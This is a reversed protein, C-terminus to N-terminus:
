TNRVKSLYTVAPRTNLEALVHYGRKSQALKAARSEPDNLNGFVIANAPCSQQCATIIEGDAVDRKEIAAKDKAGRIRQICFTCKEMVGRSRVTVDPNLAQDIPTQIWKTFNHFNFRRVKYPCNNACYRTGVCRNYTMQNLGDDSHFTALTPCVTECPANECHQCVMPQHVVDPNEPAGSYYRDIRIWHMERGKLVQAKGVPPINNEAQCAAVCAGCGICANLDIAMGWRPGKYEHTPWLSPHHDEPVGSGPNKQFETWTAEAIIPRGAVDHHGQTCALETHKGTRVIAVKEGMWVPLGNMTQYPYVNVGVGEAVRGIDKQGCGVAVMVTHSHLKPQIHVPLETTFADSTVEVIEGEAVGLAQAYAPSVSLYNEWTIKSVPDPLELLWPNNLSRGDAMTLSPYLTLVVDDNAARLAPLNTLADANFIRPAATRGRRNREEGVLDVVGKELADEWKLTVESTWRRRLYDYWSKETSAGWAILLDQFSRNNWLPAIVPQALSMLGAQPSADNWSELFHTDPCIYNSARATANLHDSLSVVFPVNVLADTFGLAPPLTFVPDSKDIFLAGVTGARMEAVLATLDRFSSTAQTSPAVSTDITQGDNELSANLLDVVSQLAVAHKAKTAGALVIGQGRVKWLHDATKRIADADVGTQKAVTTVSYPQLASIISSSGAYSTLGRKVILEHALALAVFLEDGAKLSTYQDANTGTLSLTSEFCILRVCKGEDVRRAKSFGKVFELPSLWTGLFDAGFTVVLRAQDFRYRPTVYTGHSREQGLAVEEPVTADFSVHQGSPFQKVFDNILAKTSPSTIAGTLVVVKRGSTKMKALVGRIAGDVTAWDSTETTGKGRAAILPQQIRDPDYLNLLSAQGRACLSGQNLPHLDNGELKIPRGERVKALIGCASPCEGCTSAYWTAVGPTIEEPKNVYPMIKEVPRRTCGIASLATAAGMLKLFDRREMPLVDDKLPPTFFEQEHREAYASNEALEELSGWYQPLPIPTNM